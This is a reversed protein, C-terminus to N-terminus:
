QEGGKIFSWCIMTGNFKRDLTIESKTDAKYFGNNSIVILDQIIKNSMFTNIKPLGKGRYQLQTSTRFEGNLVSSIIRSDTYGFIDEVLRKKVTEPIGKGNDLISFDICNSTSDHCAVLWWKAYKADHSAYAHEKTNGMCELITTYFAKTIKSRKIDLKRCAFEIVNDAIEGSVINDCKVSLINLDEPTTYSSNVYDYFGSHLFIERCKKDEPANGTIRIKRNRKAKDLFLLLYLVTEPTIVKIKRIDIYLNHNIFATNEIKSFYSITETPNEIISFIEPACIRYKSIYNSKSIIVRNPTIAQNRLIAKLSRTTNFDKFKEELYLKKM